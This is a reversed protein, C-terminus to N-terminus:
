DLAPTDHYITEELPYGPNIGSTLVRKRVDDADFEIKVNYSESADGGYLILIAGKKDKKIIAKGLDALDSFVSRPIILPNSNVSIEIRDVISCVRRSYTCNSQIVSPRKGIQVEHVKIKVQVHLKGLTTTILTEGQSKVPILYSPYKDPVLTLSAYAIGTVLVTVFCCFLYIFSKM